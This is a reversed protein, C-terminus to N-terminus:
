KRLPAAVRGAVAGRIGEVATLAGRAAASVHEIGDNATRM